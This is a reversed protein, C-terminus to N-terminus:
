EVNYDVGIVFTSTYEIEDSFRTPVTYTSDSVWSLNLFQNNLTNFSFSSVISVQVFIESTEASYDISRIRGNNLNVKLKIDDVLNNFNVRLKTAEEIDEEFAIADLDIQYGEFEEQTLLLAHEYDYNLRNLEELEFVAASYPRYIAFFGLVVAFLLALIVNMNFQRSRRVEPLLDVYVFDGFGSADKTYVHRKAM